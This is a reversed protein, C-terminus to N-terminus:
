ENDIVKNLIMKEIDPLFIRPICFENINSIMDEDDNYFFLEKKTISGNFVIKEDSLIVKIKDSDLQFYTIRDNSRKCIEYLCNDKFFVTYHAIKAKRKSITIAFLVSFYVSLVFTYIMTHFFCVAFLSVILLRSSIKLMLVFKDVKHIRNVLNDDEDFIKIKKSENIKM